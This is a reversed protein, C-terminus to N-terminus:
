SGPESPALSLWGIAGLSLSAVAIPAAGVLFGFGWSRWRAASRDMWVYSWPRRDIWRLMIVHAGIAGLTVAFEDASHKVGTWREVAMLPARLLAGVAIAAVFFVALYILIRWGARM